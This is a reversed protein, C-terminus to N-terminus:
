RCRYTYTYSYRYIYIYTYRYRYRNNGSSSDGTDQRRDWQIETESSEALGGLLDGM